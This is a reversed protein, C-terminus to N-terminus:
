LNWPNQLVQESYYESLKGTTGYRYLATMLVSSVASALVAICIWYVVAIVVGVIIAVAGSIVFGIVLPVLGLLALAFFILGIGLNSILAEGL